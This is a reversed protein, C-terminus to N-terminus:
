EFQDLYSCDTIMEEILFCAEENYKTTMIKEIEGLAYLYGDRWAQESEHGGKNLEAVEKKSLELFEKQKM